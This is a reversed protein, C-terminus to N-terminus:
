AEPRHPVDDDGHRSMAYAYAFRDQGKMAAMKERDEETMVRRGNVTSRPSQADRQQGSNIQEKCAETYALRARAERKRVESEAADQKSKEFANVWLDPM